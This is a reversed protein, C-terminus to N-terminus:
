EVTIFSQWSEEALILSLFGTLSNVLAPRRILASTATTARAEPANADPACAAGCDITKPAAEADGFLCVPVQGTVTVSDM